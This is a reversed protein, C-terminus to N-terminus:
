SNLTLHTYFLIPLSRCPCDAWLFILYDPICSELSEPAVIYLVQIDWLEHPAPHLHLWPRVYLSRCPTILIKWVETKLMFLFVQAWFCVTVSCLVLTFCSLCPGALVILASSSPSEIAGAPTLTSQRTFRIGGTSTTYYTRSSYYCKYHVTKNIM